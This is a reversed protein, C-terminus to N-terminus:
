WLDSYAHCVINMEGGTNEERSRLTSSTPDIVANSRVSVSVPANREAGTVAKRAAFDFASRDSHEPALQSEGAPDSDNGLIIQERDGLVVKNVRVAKTEHSLLERYIERKYIDNTTSDDTERENIEHEAELRPFGPRM